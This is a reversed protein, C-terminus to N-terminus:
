RLRIPIPTPATEAMSLYGEVCDVLMLDWLSLTQGRTDANVEIATNMYCFRLNNLVINDSTALHLGVNGYRNTGVIGTYGSWIGTSLQAGSTNDDAATFIATRYNTTAMTLTSEVEIAGINTTPYKFVCSEMTVPGTNYVTGSVFYTTDSAYVTPTTGGVTVIYDVAVGKPIKVESALHKAAKLNEDPKGKDVRLPPLSAAAVRMRKASRRSKLSSTKMPIAPLSELAGALSQYRVSEVLFTRGSSDTVFDKAVTVGNAFGANPTTSYCRGPIFVYNGFDLTYDIYDPTAMGARVAQNTEIYLDRELFNPQPVNGYFETFIQVELTNTSDAAFGYVTPDFNTAFSTFIVDQHFSGTDPLSYVVSAAMGSGVLANTFVIHQPDVMVGYSNTLKALVVSLGSKTDYLGVAVPTSQLTVGNPTTATVAGQTNINGAIQTPDQIQNAVFSNGDASVSFSNVSAFWQGNTQYNLGTQIQMVTQGASNQWTLSHLAVATVAYDSGPSGSQGTTGTTLGQGSVSIPALIVFGATWGGKASVRM